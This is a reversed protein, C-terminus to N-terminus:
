LRSSAAESPRRAFHACSTSLSRQTGEKLLAWAVPPARAESMQSSFPVSIFAEATKSQDKEDAKQLAKPFLTAKFLFWGLGESSSPKERHTSIMRDRIPM